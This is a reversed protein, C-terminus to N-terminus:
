VLTGGSATYTAQAVNMAIGGQQATSGPLSAWTASAAAIAGAFDGQVILSLAGKLKLLMVAFIDQSAPSFDQPAGPVLKLGLWTPHNIQYAGAATSYDNPSGDANAAKNPNNFPIRVNPHTSYDAFHGGGYLVSYDGGSEGRKIVALLALVNVSNLAEATTITLSM